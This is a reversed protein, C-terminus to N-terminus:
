GGSDHCSNMINKYLPVAFIYSFATFFVFLSNSNKLQWVILSDAPSSQKHFLLLLHKICYYLQALLETFCLLLTPLTSVAYISWRRVAPARSQFIHSNLLCNSNMGRTQSVRSGKLKIM